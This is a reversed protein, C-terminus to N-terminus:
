IIASVAIDEQIEEKKVEIKFVKKVKGAQVTIKTKGIRNATIRGLANVEAVEVNSSKYTIEQDGANTPLVTIGLLQTTGVGMEKQYDGLDLDTAAVEANSM